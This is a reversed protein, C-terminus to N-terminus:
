QTLKVTVRVEDSRFQGVEVMVACSGALMSRGPDLTEGALSPQGEPLLHLRVAVKGWGLIFPKAVSVGRLEVGGGFELNRTELDVAGL